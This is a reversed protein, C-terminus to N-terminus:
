SIDEKCFEKIEKDLLRYVNAVLYGDAVAHNLRVTLPMM